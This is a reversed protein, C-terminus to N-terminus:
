GWQERRKLWEKTKGRTKTEVTDSDLIVTDTDRENVMNKARLVHTSLILYLKIFFIDTCVNGVHQDLM